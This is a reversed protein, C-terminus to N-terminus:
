RKVAKPMPQYVVKAPVVPVVPVVPAAPAAFIAGPIAVGLSFTSLMQLVIKNM